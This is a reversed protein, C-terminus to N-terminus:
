GQSSSNKSLISLFKDNVAGVGEFLHCTKAKVHRTRTKPPPPPPPAKKKKKKCPNCDHHTIEGGEGGGGGLFFDLIPFYRM